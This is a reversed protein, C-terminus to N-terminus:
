LQTVVKLKRMYPRDKFKLADYIKKVEVSSRKCLKNYIRNNDKADMSIM